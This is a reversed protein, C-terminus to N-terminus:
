FINEERGLNHLNENFFTDIKLKNHDIEEDYQDAEQDKEKIIFLIIYYLKKSVVYLNNDTLVEMCVKFCSIIMISKELFDKKKLKLNKHNKIYYLYEKKYIEGVHQCFFSVDSLFYDERLKKLHKEYFHLLDIQVKNKKISFLKTVYYHTLMLRILFSNGEVILSIVSLTKEYFKEKTEKKLKDKMYRNISLFYLIDVLLDLYGIKYLMIQKIEKSDQIDNNNFAENINALIIDINKDMNEYFNIVDSCKDEVLNIRHDRVEIFLANFKEDYSKYKERFDANNIKLMKEDLKLNSEYIIKLNEQFFDNKALSLDLIDLKSICKESSDIISFLNKIILDNKDNKQFAYEDINSSDPNSASNMKNKLSKFVVHDNRKLM